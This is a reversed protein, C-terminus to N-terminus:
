FELYLKTQFLIRSGLLLKLIHSLRTWKDKFLLAVSLALVRSLSVCRTLQLARWPVAREQKGSYHSKALGRELDQKKGELALQSFINQECKGSGRMGSRKRGTESRVAQTQRQGAPVGGAFHQCTGGTGPLGAGAGGQKVSALRAPQGRM